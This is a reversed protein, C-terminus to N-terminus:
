RYIGTKDKNEKCIYFIQLDANSYSRIPIFSSTTGNSSIYRKTIQKIKM